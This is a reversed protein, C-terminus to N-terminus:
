RCNQPRYKAPVTGATNCEWLISGMNNLTPIFVISQGSGVQTRYTIIITGNNITVSRTANGNISSAIPLDASLNDPPWTGHRYFYEYVALKAGSSFNIGEFVHARKLYDQYATIALAALIGIIGVTIMLEILTFGRHHRM